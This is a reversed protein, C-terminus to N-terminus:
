TSEVNRWRSIRNSRSCSNEDTINKIGLGSDGENGFQKTLFLKFRNSGM